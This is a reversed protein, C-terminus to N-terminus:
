AVALVSIVHHSHKIRECWSPPWGSGKKLKKAPQSCEERGEEWLIKVDRHPSCARLWSLCLGVPQKILHWEGPQWLRALPQLFGIGVPLSTSIARFPGLWCPLLPSVGYGRTGAGASAGHMLELCEHGGLPVFAKLGKM